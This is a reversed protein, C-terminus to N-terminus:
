SYILLRSWTILECYYDWVSVSEWVTVIGVPQWAVRVNQSCMSVASVVVDVLNSLRVTVKPPVV